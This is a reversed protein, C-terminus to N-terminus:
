IKSGHVPIQTDVDRLSTMPGGTPSAESPFKAGSPPQHLLEAFEEYWAQLDSRLGEDLATNFGLARITTECEDVWNLNSNVAWERLKPITTLPKGSNPEHLMLIRALALGAITRDLVRRSRRTIPVPEVFRDAQTVFERFMRYVTADRERAIKHVVFVLGPFRRGVRATAQIFEAAGLPLGLMIMANLRDVDVGHSMMSSATIAHIRDYFEDEPSQLRQLIEAVDNFNTKGTLTEWNVQHDAIQPQMEGSRYVAEIDRLSNGYVVQTGYDLILRNAFNPDIGLASCVTQPDEILDRICTQLERVISDNVWELTLGRPAIGVFRRMPEVSKASWFGIGPKPGPTPFLRAKRRYLEEIQKEYGRLTASSALIKPRTGGLTMTLDDYLSEYHSDVAGLSDRLLHLEDQLRFRPAFRKHDMGLPEVNAECDPLLCGSKRGTRPAYVFGHGPRSCKGWPAGVLGRMAQQMGILAAKDLTGVLVTPLFRYIEEDVVYLPLAREPWPCGEAGCRHELTWSSRHFAMKLDKNSCFPCYDLVRYKMPMTEDNANPHDKPDLYVKNPTAGSGIFFGLSILDGGIEEERRVLEAAALADAFRQTQQLSLMRLPFRSWATIGSTKGTLRDYFVATVLLGLYTETKGGGTAFWVVDCIDTDGAEGVVSSLNALLFGFQFPRWGSYGRSKGVSAMARHMCSFSRALIPDNHLLEVGHAIREVEQWFSLADLDAQHRMEDSWEETKERRSLEKESWHQDGWERLSRVLDLGADVVADALYTFTLNPPETEAGWFKPRWTDVVVIDNTRLANEVLDVGCNIGYAPVGRDYRYAEPLKELVFPEIEIDRIELVCEYLRTDFDDGKDSLDGDNVLSVQLEAVESEEEVEIVEVDIRAGFKAIDAENCLADALLQKGFQGISKKTNVAVPVSINSLRRKHWIGDKAKIWVCMSVVATFRYEAATPTRFHVGIACPELREGREDTNSSLIANEPQIRGLWFRNAPAVSSEDSEDGRGAVVTRHLLWDRFRIRAQEGTLANMQEDIM